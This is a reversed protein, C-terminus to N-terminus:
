TRTWERRLGSFISRLYRPRELGDDEVTCAAVGFGAALLGSVWWVVVLADTRVGESFYLYAGVLFVAAGFLGGLARM